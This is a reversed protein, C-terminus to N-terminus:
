DGLLHNIKDEHALVPQDGLHVYNGFGDLANNFMYSIPADGSTPSTSM